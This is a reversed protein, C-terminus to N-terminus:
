PKRNECLTELRELLRIRLPALREQLPAGPCVVVHGTKNAVCVRQHAEPRQVDGRRQHRVGPVCAALMLQQGRAARRGLAGAARVDVAQRVHVAGTGYQAEVLVAVERHLYQGVQEEAVGDVRLVQLPKFFM